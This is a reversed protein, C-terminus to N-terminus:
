LLFFVTLFEPKLYHYHIIVLSTLPIMDQYRITISLDTFKDMLNDVLVSLPLSKIYPIPFRLELIM